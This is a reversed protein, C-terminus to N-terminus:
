GEKKKWGESTAEMRIKEKSGKMTQKRGVKEGGWIRDERM